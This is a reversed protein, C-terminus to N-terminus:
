VKRYKNKDFLPKSNTQKAPTTNNSGGRMAGTIANLISKTNLANMGPIKSLYKSYKSYTDNIFSKDVGMDDLIKAGAEPSNVNNM